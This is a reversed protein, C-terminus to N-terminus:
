VKYATRLEALLPQYHFLLSFAVSLSQLQFAHSGLSACVHESHHPKGVAARCVLQLCLAHLNHAAAVPKGPHRHRRGVHLPYRCELTHPTELQCARYLCLVVLRAKGRSHVHYVCSCSQCLGISTLSHNASDHVVSHIWVVDVETTLVALRAHCPQCLHCRVHSRSLHVFLKVAVIRGVDNASPIYRCEGGVVGSCEVAAVCHSCHCAAVPACGRHRCAVPLAACADARHLIWIVAHCIVGVDGHSAAVQIVSDYCVTHVM